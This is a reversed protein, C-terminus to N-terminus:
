QVTIKWTVNGCAEMSDVHFVRSNGTTKNGTWLDTIEFQTAQKWIDVDPMKHGIAEIIDHVSVEIRDRCARDSINVFSVAVSGDSLPKALVDVRHKDRIYEKDPEDAFRYREGEKDMDEIRCIIRKAQVGLKDQNLAILEKNSIIRWIEDDKKVRRLDLGLMLPANLMCWMAMHTRNMNRDLGNMGIVLMDPDNWGKDLGSFEDMIVAKNYQTTISPTYDDYWAAYGSDGDSGVRFTIDNLIRWSDGVKYAWNQPQNKGWECLSYIIDKDGAAKKLERLMTAYSGLTNEQRRHNMIRLINKGEKLEITIPESTVFCTPGDTAPLNDDYYIVSTDNHKLAAQLWQGTGIETGTAYTIYMKYEGPLTTNVAFTLEGSEDGIPTQEPGTGDFTGIHSVHDEHKIVGKGCIGDKVADLELKFKKGEIRVGRINPTYVYRVREKDSFTADDWMYYCNDVKLYDIDWEAYKAADDKEHGFTGVEAGSCLNTGIDNYMGFKLGKGHIYDAMAKFGSPFRTPDSTLYRGKREPKYCGDDLVVYKYGCKDLGLETMEDAMARTLEENNGTGFANWSNWGMAPLRGQKKGLLVRGNDFADFRYEDDKIVGPEPLPTLHNILAAMAVRYGEFGQGYVSRICAEKVYSVKRYDERNYIDTLHVEVAPVSIAKIADMLAISTHAYASPNIIIGDYKMDAKQVAEILEGEMNSIVFDVKVKKDAAVQKCFEVLDEYTGTGYIKPQRKGLLNINPGNIILFKYM